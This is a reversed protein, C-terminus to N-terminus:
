FPQISHPTWAFDFCELEHSSRRGTSPHPDRQSCFQSCVPQVNNSLGPRHLMLLRPNLLLKSMRPRDQVARRTSWFRLNCTRNRDWRGRLRSNIPVAAVHRAAQKARMSGMQGWRPLAPLWTLSAWSTISRSTCWPRSRDEVALLLRASDRM